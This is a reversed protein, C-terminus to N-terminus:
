EGVIEWGPSSRNGSGVNNCRAIREEKELQDLARSLENGWAQHNRFARNLDRTSMKGGAAVVKNYVTEVMRPFEFREFMYREVGGVVAEFGREALEIGFEIDRKGVARARRGVAVITAIRIANECVRQSLDKRNEDGDASQLEDIRRSFELYVEPAGDDAWDIKLPEPIRGDLRQDLMSLNLRPLARLRDILEKPPDAPVTRMKEPPKKHGEFPLVLLRNVFGGELDKAQLARFFPTPVGAGIISPAPSRIVESDQGAKAATRVDSWANYCKKLTSFVMGVFGNGKQDNILAIQDGLEDVFCCCLPHEKLFRWLGQSSVFEDPGILSEDLATLLRRGCALPDDKGFGTPALMIMYLHTAADQPGKVRRGIVTGVVALAVGLAMMPNPRISYAIIWDSIAGVAGPVRDGTWPEEVAAPKVRKPAEALGLDKKALAGNLREALAGGAAALRMEGLAKESPEAPKEQAQKARNLKAAFDEGAALRRQRAEAELMEWKLRIPEQKLEFREALRLTDAKKAFDGAALAETIWALAEEETDVSVAVAESM